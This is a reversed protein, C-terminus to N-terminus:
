RADGVPFVRGIEEQQEAACLLVVHVFEALSEPFVSFGVKRAVDRAIGALGHSTDIEAILHDPLPANDNSLSQLLQAALSNRGDRPYKATMAQRFDAAAALTAKIAILKAQPQAATDTISM